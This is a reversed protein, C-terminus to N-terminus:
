SVQAAIVMLVSGAPVYKPSSGEVAEATVKDETERHNRGEHREAFWPVNGTQDSNGHQGQFAHRRGDVNWAQRAAGLVVAPVAWLVDVADDNEAAAVAVDM